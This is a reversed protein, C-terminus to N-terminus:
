NLIWAAVGAPPLFLSGLVLSTGKPVLHAIEVDIPAYNFAFQFQGHRRLRLGKPLARVPLGCESALLALIDLMLASDPWASLYHLRDAQYWIGRGGATSRRPPLATEIHELWRIVAGAGNEIAERHGPRLSEVAQIRVAILQQLLGPALEGPIQFDPTKSGSRPGFLITATSDALRDMLTDDVVPLSPAVVLSYGRLDAGPPLIDVDLGLERLATYFEFALRLPDFTAGQPQIGLMWLAEYSLLLAVPARQVEGPPLAALEDAVARVEAAAPGDVHDPRLLGAHM